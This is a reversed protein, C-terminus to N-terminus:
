RHDHDHDHDRDHDRDNRKRDHDRDRSHNQYVRGRDDRDRAYRRDHDDRDRVYRRDRDDRDHDNRERNIRDRNYNRYEDQVSRGYRANRWAWYERQREAALRNYEIYSYRREALWERYRAQEAADWSNYGYNPGYYPGSTPYRHEACGTAAIMTGLTATSLIVALSRRM